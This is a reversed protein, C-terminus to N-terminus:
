TIHHHSYKVTNIKLLTLKWLNEPRRECRMFLKVKDNYKGAFMPSPHLPNCCKRSRVYKSWERNEGGGPEGNGIKFIM